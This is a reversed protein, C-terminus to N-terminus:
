PCGLGSTQIAERIVTLTAELAGSNDVVLTPFPLSEAFVQRYAAEYARLSAASEDPGAGGPRSRCREVAVELPVTIHFNISPPQIPDFFPLTEIEIGTSRLYATFCHIPEIAKSSAARPAQRGTALLYIIVINYQLM